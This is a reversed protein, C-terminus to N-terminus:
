WASRAELIGAFALRLRKPITQPKFTRMNVCVTTGLARVLLKKGRFVEYRFTVSTRGIKAVTFRVPLRDGYTLPSLFDVEYHVAPFGARLKGGIVEPYPIKVKAEFFGEFVQHFYDFIRPYYVIGARDVDGFRVQVYGVYARRGQAYQPKPNPTQPKPHRM